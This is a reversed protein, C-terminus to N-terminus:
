VARRLHRDSVTPGAQPKRARGMRSSVSRDCAPSLRSRISGSRETPRRRWHGGIEFLRNPRRPRLLRNSPRVGHGRSLGASGEHQSTSVFADAMCLLQFKESESVHGFFRVRDDVNLQAAQRRLESELPGDGVVLLHAKALEPAALLAILQDVAKRAVLRGVTILLVDDDRFGYDQRPAAVTPPRKIGLPIVEGPLQPSYFRRANGLTDSSQAIVADARELLARVWRRLAPHRHPSTWKSPDYLDGGHVSLVNLVGRRSLADGVPGSPLAFHTNIVDYHEAAVLQRGFWTGMLMYGFMSTLTATARGRRGVPVRVIRVGNKTERTALGPGQSTLVTVEHRQALEEALFLTAVGGGGGLPPYEYNCLLIRLAGGKGSRDVAGGVEARAGARGSATGSEIQRSRDAVALCCNPPDQRFPGPSRTLGEFSAMSQTGHHPRHPAEISIWRPWSGWIPRPGSSRSGSARGSSIWVAVIYLLSSASGPRLAGELVVAATLFPWMPARWTHRRKGLADAIAEVMQATTVPEPGALIFAQGLARPSSRAIRLGDILDDVYIPQHRNDGRGIMVFSGKNIARFLKWCRRDGPGYVEAIRIVAVPVRPAYSLALREGKAKSLGYINDPHM